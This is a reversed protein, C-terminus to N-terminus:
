SNQRLLKYYLINFLIYFFPISVIIRYIIYRSYLSSFRILRIIRLRNFLSLPRSFGSAKLNFSAYFTLGNFVSGSFLRLGWIPFLYVLGSNIVPYNKIILLCFIIFFSSFIFIKVRLNYTFNTPKLYLLRAIISGRSFSPLSLLFIGKNLSTDGECIHTKPTMTNFYVLVMKILRSSYLLTIILSLLTFTIIGLTRNNYINIEIIPEKSFFAATFPTGCLSARALIITSSNFPSSFLIMGTNKISQYLQRSHIINGVRIFIIAKFFAHTVLHFFAIFVWGTGISLIILGLQSLTSLAVMKKIDKENLASLSALTITSLGIFIVIFSEATDGAEYFHRFILYVGATVLTSSHVLSSVPTPAAIAAPLWARFPIQARKTFSGTILLIKLVSDVYLFEKYLLISWSGINLLIGIRMLLLVDGFRNTMVTLMGANYSKTSGYYIVLLYSSVGLGDWGVLTFILNSSIILLIISIVFTILLVHFRGFFKQPRMYRFSFTFVALSILSVTLLFVRTFIDLMFSIEIRLSNLDGLNIFLFKQGRKNLTLM